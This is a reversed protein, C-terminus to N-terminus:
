SSPRRGEGFRRLLASAHSSDRLTDLIRQAAAEGFVYAYENWYQLFRRRNAEASLEPHFQTAYVNRGVRLAQYPCRESSALWVAGTPLHLARDKHGLQAHFTDPLGGFLPDARGEATLSLLHSGVEANPEDTRVEAGLAVCLGQFGFCSAFTPFDRDALAGLTDFFNPLWAEDGTVSYRGSGGVLVADYRDCLADVDLAGGLATVCDISAPDVGLEHAFSRHEEPGTAEDPERAQILAYRIM